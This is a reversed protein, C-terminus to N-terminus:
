IIRTPGLNTRVIWETMYVSVPFSVDRWDNVRNECPNILVSEAFVLVLGM